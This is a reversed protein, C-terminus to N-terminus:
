RRQLTLNGGTGSLNAETGEKGFIAMSAGDLAAFAAEQEASTGDPCSSSGGPDATFAVVNGKQKYTWARRQCGASLSVKGGAFSATMAAAVPKGDIAAVTWQGELAPVDATAEPAAPAAALENSQAPAKRDEQGCAAVLLMAMFLPQSRNM